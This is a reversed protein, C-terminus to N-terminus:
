QGQSFDLPSCLMKRPMHCSLFARLRRKATASGLCCSVVLEVASLEPVPSCVAVDRFESFAHLVHSRVLHFENQGAATGFGGVRVTQSDHVIGALVREVHTFIGRSGLFSM